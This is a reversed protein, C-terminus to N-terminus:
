IVWLIVFFFFFVLFMFSFWLVHISFLYYSTLSRVLM